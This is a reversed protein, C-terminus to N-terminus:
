KKGTRHLNIVNVQEALKQEVFALLAKHCEEIEELPTPFTAEVYIQVSEFNGLNKTLRTGQTLKALPVNAPYQKVVIGPLSESEELTLVQGNKYTRTVTVESKVQESM